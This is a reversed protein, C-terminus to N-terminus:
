LRLVDESIKSLCLNIRDLAAHCGSLIAQSQDTEAARSPPIPQEPRHGVLRGVRGSLENRASNLQDCLAELRKLLDSAQEGCPVPKSKADRQPMPNASGTAYTTM